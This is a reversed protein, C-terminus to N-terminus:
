FSTPLSINKKRETGEERETKKREIGEIDYQKSTSQTVVVFGLKTYLQITKSFIAVTPAHITFHSLGEIISAM